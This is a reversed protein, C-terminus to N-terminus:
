ISQAKGVGGVLTGVFVRPNNTSDPFRLAYLGEFKKGKLTELVDEHIGLIALGYMKLYKLRVELRKKEAPLTEQDFFERVPELGNEDKFYVIKWAV